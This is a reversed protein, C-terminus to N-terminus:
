RGRGPLVPRLVDAAGVRPSGSGGARPYFPAGVMAARGADREARLARGAGDDPELEEFVAM